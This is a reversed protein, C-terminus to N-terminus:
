DQKAEDAKPPSEQNRAALVVTARRSLRARHLGDRPYDAVVEITRRDSHDTVPEIHIEVAAGDPVGIEEAAITWTEGHYDAAQRLKAAARDIAGEALWEAVLRDQAMQMQERQTAITKFWSVVLMSSVVLVIMVGILAVGRRQKMM